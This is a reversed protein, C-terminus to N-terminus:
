NREKRWFEFSIRMMLRMQEHLIEEKSLYKYKSHDVAKFLSNRGPFYQKCIRSNEESFFDVIQNRQKRSILSVKAGKAYSEGTLEGIFRYFDNDHANKFIDRNGAVLPTIIDSYSPNADEKPFTFRSAQDKLSLAHLFDLMIDGGEFEERDFIRVCVNGKGVMDEWCNIIDEWHGLRKLATLLWAELDSEVKSHWQQWSSLILDDQRRIYLIIKVRYKACITKFYPIQLTHSLNEASILIKHDLPKEHMLDDFRKSLIDEPQSESFINQFAFVQEGTIKNSWQLERDPISIRSSNFQDINKQIFKQIASSGTKNGGVHFIMDFGELDANMKDKKKFM